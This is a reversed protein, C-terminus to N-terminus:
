SIVAPLIYFMSHAVNPRVAKSKFDSFLRYNTSVLVNKTATSSCCMEGLGDMDNQFRYTLCCVCNLIGTYHIHV